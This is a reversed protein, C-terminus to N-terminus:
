SFDSPPSEVIQIPPLVTTITRSTTSMATRM